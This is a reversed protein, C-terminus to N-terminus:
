KRGELLEAEGRPRARLHFAEAAPHVLHGRVTNLGLGTVLAACSTAREISHANAYVTMVNGRLVEGLCKLRGHNTDFITVHAGMGAAVKAANTGVVGCGIM